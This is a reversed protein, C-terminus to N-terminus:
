CSLARTPMNRISYPNPGGRILIPRVLDSFMKSIVMLMWSSQGGEECFNQLGLSIINSWYNWIARSNSLTGRGYCSTKGAPSNKWIFSNIWNLSICVMCGVILYWAIRFVYRLTTCGKYYLANQMLEIAAANSEIESGVIRHPWFCIWLSHYTTWTLAAFWIPQRGVIRHPGSNSPNLSDM